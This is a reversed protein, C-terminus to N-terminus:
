ESKSIIEEALKKYAKLMRIFTMKFFEDKSLLNILYDALPKSLLDVEEFISNLTKDKDAKNILNKWKDYPIIEEQQEQAKPFTIPTDKVAEQLRQKFKPLSFTREVLTDEISRITCGVIIAALDKPDRNMFFSLTHDASTRFHGLKSNTEILGERGSAIFQEALMAIPSFADKERITKGELATKLSGPKSYSRVFNEIGKNM